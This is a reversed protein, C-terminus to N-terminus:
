RAGGRSALSIMARRLVGINQFAVAGLILAAGAWQAPGLREGLFLFALVLTVVVELSSLVSARTPGVLAMGALFAIM